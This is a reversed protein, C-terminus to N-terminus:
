FWCTRARIGMDVSSSRTRRVEEEVCVPTLRITRESVPATMAIEEGVRYDL